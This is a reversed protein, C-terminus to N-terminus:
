QDYHANRLFTYHQLGTTAEHRTHMHIIHYTCLDMCQNVSYVGMLKTTLDNALKHLEVSPSRLGTILHEWNATAVTDLWRELMKTCCIKFDGGCDSEITTLVKIDQDDLLQVGLAFWKNGVLPAM